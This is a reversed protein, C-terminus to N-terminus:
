TPSSRSARSGRSSRRPGRCGAWACGAWFLKSMSGVTLVNARPAFRAIPPPPEAGFSLEALTEDEIV